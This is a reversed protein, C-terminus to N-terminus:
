PHHGEDERFSSACCRRLSDHASCIGVRSAKGRVLTDDPVFYLRGPYRYAADYYGSFDCNKIRAIAQAARNLMFRHRAQLPKSLPSSYVVVRGATTARSMPQQSRRQPFSSNRDYSRPM